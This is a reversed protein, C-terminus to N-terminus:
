HHLLLRLIYTPPNIILAKFLNSLSTVGSYGYKEYVESKCKQEIESMPIPDVKAVKSNTFLKRIFSFM